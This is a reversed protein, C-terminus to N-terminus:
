WRNSLERGCNECTSTDAGHHKNSCCTCYNQLLRIEERESELLFGGRKLAEAKLEGIRSAIYEQSISSGKSVQCRWILQKGVNELYMIM